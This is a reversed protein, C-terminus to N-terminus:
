GPVLCLSTIRRKCCITKCNALLEPIFLATKCQCGRIWKFLINILQHYKGAWVQRDVTFAINGESREAYIKCPAKTLQFKFLYPYIFSLGYDGGM